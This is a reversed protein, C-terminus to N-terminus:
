VSLCLFHLVQELGEIVNIWGQKWIMKILEIVMMFKDDHSVGLLIV